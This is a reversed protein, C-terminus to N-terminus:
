HDKRGPSRHTPELAPPPTLEREFERPPVFGQHRLIQWLRPGLTGEGFPRQLLDTAGSQVAFALQGRDFRGTSLLVPLAALAPQSKLIRTVDFGDIRPLDVDMLVLHVTSKMLAELAEQGNRAELTRCGVACVATATKLLEPVDDQVVLVLPTPASGAAPAPAAALTKPLVISNFASELAAVIEDEGTLRLAASDRQQRPAQELLALETELDDTSAFRKERAKELTRLVIEKLAPSVDPFDDLRDPIPDTVHKMAIAVPSDAWFPVAGTLMEFAIIGISYIDSRVDLEEGLAQEPSMYQPTGLLMSALTLSQDYEGRALGFDLIAVAGASDVIVNQSKLDRHLIGLRHIAGTGRVIQRLIPVAEAPPIRKRDEVLDWLDKGEVYEMTIFPYDGSVGYDYMRAVNPHKIKRNLQIERKFRALLAQEDREISPSLVKIAVVEDLETDLAKFVTGVGGHGLTTLWRYRQAGEFFRERFRDFKGDDRIAAM